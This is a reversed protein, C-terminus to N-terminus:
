PSLYGSNIWWSYIGDGGSAQLTTSYSTDIIGDPLTTESLIMLSTTTAKPTTKGAKVEESEVSQDTIGFDVTNAFAEVNFIEGTELIKPNNPEPDIIRLNIIVEDDPGLYFTANEISSNIINPNIINPNIINPNIINPNVINAVLEFHPEKKLECGFPDSATSGAGPTYHVRYIMLQTEIDKPISSTSMSKLTYSSATNGENEVKWVVDAIGANIINPNIINPNIINPNIINPNIINPNIINPNIINPNIINPNIINPNIINPNIINPNIINPNIINPNIINPNIINPNAYDLAWNIINPNIINPNIINPNIINPAHYEMYSLDDDYPIGPNTSDPNIVISSTYGDPVISGGPFGIEVVDITVSVQLIFSSIFVPRSITSYPAISVDLETLFDFELFSAQGDPYDPPQNPITLRYSRIEDTANKVYIIFTRPIPDNTGPYYGLSDGLPKANRPSGVVVGKTIRSTYINQNRMGTREPDACPIEPLQGDDTESPPNYNTWDNDWPPRVDRNDTWAVHFVPTNTSETNFRWNGRDDLVFMPSASIDVYDGHFPVTGGKFLAYNPPNHQVPGSIAYGDGDVVLNGTEDMLWAWLYRSVQVSPEFVPNQGPDAQAMRIDVTHRIVNIASDDSIYYASIDPCYDNRNDYWVMM